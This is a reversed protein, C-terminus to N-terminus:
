NEQAAPARDIALRVERLLTASDFPKAIIPIRDALLWGERATDAHGSMLAVSIGPRHLRIADIM